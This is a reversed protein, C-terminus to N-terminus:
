VYFFEFHVFICAFFCVKSEFRTVKNLAAVVLCWIWFTSSRSLWIPEDILVELSGILLFVRRSLYPHQRASKAIGDYFNQIFNHLIVSIFGMGFWSFWRLQLHVKQLQHFYGSFASNCYSYDIIVSFWDTSSVSISWHFFIM